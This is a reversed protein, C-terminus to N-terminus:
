RYIVPLSSLECLYWQYFMVYTSCVSLKLCLCMVALCCVTGDIVVCSVSIGKTENEYSGTNNPLVCTNVKEASDQLGFASIEYLVRHNLLFNVGGCAGPQQQSM